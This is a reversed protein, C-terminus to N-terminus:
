IAFGGDVGLIQGTIFSADDSALFSVAGAIEYPKGIRCLPTENALAYMDSQSLHSNMETDIVGPAICNVRIGSPGLEKALAKTFGIVAAKSASYVTECSAGCIGWMSSICIISGSHNKLMYTVAERCCKFVGDTNVSMIRRYESDSINNLVAQSAVGANCVLLNIDGYESYARSFLACVDETVTVDAKIAIANGGAETIGDAIRAAKEESTHFATVINFGDRALRKCIAEGIGGAGGTVIATPKMTLREYEISQILM